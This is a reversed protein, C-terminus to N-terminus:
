AKKFQEVRIYYHSRHDCVLINATIHKHACMLVRKLYNNNYIGLTGGQASAFIWILLSM